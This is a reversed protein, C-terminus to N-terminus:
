GIGSMIGMLPLIVSLLVMGVILSLIIVLTPELISLISQIRHDTEREYSEAIKKMVADINGSRFGVAVMRSHLNNFIGSEILAESFNDGKEISSRCVAIKEKMRLSGTLKSVMDLSTYTDMGSGLTLAMGSAFRECAIKEYFRRTIPFSNLLKVSIRRGPATKVSIFFLATLLVLIIAIVLSYRNLSAGLTLLATAATGMSSGLQAFVQNFIPLVKSVLVYIVILMMVIMILPYSVASRINESVELEKEYYDALSLMVNDLSGAEEGLATMQIVYDPFVGACEMGEHFPRGKRCVEMISSLIERGGDAKTDSLLIDMCEAPTIGAQLLMATQSCFTAIEENSLPKNKRM